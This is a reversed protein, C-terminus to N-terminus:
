KVEAVRAFVDVPVDKRGRRVTMRGVLGWSGVKLRATTSLRSYDAAPTGIADGPGGGRADAGDHPRSWIVRLALEAARAGGGAPMRQLRPTVEVLVGDLLADTVPVLVGDGIPQAPQPAKPGKLVLVPPLKEEAIVHHEIGTEWYQPTEGEPWELRRAGVYHAKGGSVTHATVGDLTAVEASTVVAGEPAGALLKEMAQPSLTNKRAEGRVSAAANSALAVVQMRVVSRRRARMEALLLDIEAHVDPRQKAILLGDREEISTGLEAAWSEPHIRSQIMEALSSWPLLEDVETPASPPAFGLAPGPSDMAPRAVDRVDYIKLALEGGLNHPSSVFVAGDDIVFGLEAMRTVWRLARAASCKKSSWTVPVDAGGGSFARPDLVVEVDAKARIDAIVKTLALDDYEFSFEKRLAAAIKANTDEKEDAAALGALLVVAAMILSRACM